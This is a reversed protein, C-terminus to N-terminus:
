HGYLIMESKDFILSMTRKISEYDYFIFYNDNKPKYLELIKCRHLNQNIRCFQDNEENTTKYLFYNNDDYFHGYIIRYYLKDNIFEMKITYFNDYENFTSNDHIPSLFNM